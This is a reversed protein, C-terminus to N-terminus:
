RRCRRAPTAAPWRSPSGCSGHAARTPSCRPRPLWKTARVVARCTADASLGAYEGESNERVVVRDLLTHDAERLPSTIGPHFHVPNISGALRTNRSRRMARSVTSETFPRAADVHPHSSPEGWGTRPSSSRGHNWVVAPVSMTNLVPRVSARVRPRTRKANRAPVPVTRALDFLYEPEVDDLQLAQAIANLVSGSAGRINGRELRTCCGLSVGPSGPSRTGGCARVRRDGGVTPCGPGSPASTRAGTPGSSGYRTRTSM